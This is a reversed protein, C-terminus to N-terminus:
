QRGTELLRGKGRQDDMRCIQRLRKMRREVGGDEGMNSNSGKHTLRSEEGGNNAGKRDKM